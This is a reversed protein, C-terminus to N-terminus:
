NKPMNSISKGQFASSFNNDITKLIKINRKGRLLSSADTKAVLRELSFNTQKDKPNSSFWINNVIVKTFDQSKTIEFTANMPRRFISNIRFLRYDNLKWDLNYNVIVGNLANDSISKIQFGSNPTNLSKIEKEISDFSVAYDLNRQFYVRNNRLYINGQQTRPSCGILLSLSALTVIIHKM